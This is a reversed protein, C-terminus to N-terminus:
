ASFAEQLINPEAKTNILVIYSFKIFPIDRSWDKYMPLLDFYM